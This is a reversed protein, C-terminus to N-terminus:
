AHSYDDHCVPVCACTKYTSRICTRVEIQATTWNCVGVAILWAAFTAVSIILIFPVFVGAIKDAIRQIPAQLNSFDVNWYIILVFYLVM